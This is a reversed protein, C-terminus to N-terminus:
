AAGGKAPMRCREPVAAGWPLLADLADGTPTNPVTEFLFELYEFPLLGNAKATEIISYVTASAKAGNVTDCFLWNRRGLAFPRVANEARNNSMEARGDLYVNMLWRRQELAYNVAKGIASKPLVMLTELWAFFEEAKPKSEANRREFREEPTFNEWLDELHFLHGIRKIADQATSAPKEDAPIVKLADTFRRRM